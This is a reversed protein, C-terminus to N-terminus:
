RPSRDERSRPAAPSSRRRARSRRRACRRAPAASARRSRARARRARPVRRDPHGVALAAELAEDGRAHAVRQDRRDARQRARVPQEARHELGVRATGCPRCGGPGASGRSTAARAGSSSAREEAHRDDRAAADDAGEVEGVLRARLREGVVVLCSMSINAACAASAISFARRCSRLRSSLTTSSRLRSARSSCSATVCFSKPTTSAASAARSAARGRRRPRARALECRTWRAPARRRHLLQAREDELQARRRQLSSPRAAVSRLCTSTSRRTCRGRRDVSSPRRRGGRRRRSAVAVDEADGLLRQVVRQAVGVGLVDLDRSRQARRGGRASADVVVADAEVRGGRRARAGGRASSSPRARAPSRRCARSRSARRARARRHPELHRRRSGRREIASSWATTRWPRRVNRSSCSSM